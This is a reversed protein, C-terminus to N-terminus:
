IVAKGVSVISAYSPRSHRQAPQIKCMFSEAIDLPIQESDHRREHANNMRKIEGSKHKRIIDRGTCAIRAVEHLDDYRHDVPKEPKYEVPILIISNERVKRLIMDVTRSYEVSTYWVNRQEDYRMIPMMDPNKRVIRRNICCWYGHSDKGYLAGKPLLWKENICVDFSTAIYVKNRRM